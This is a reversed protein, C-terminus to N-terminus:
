GKSGWIVGSDRVASQVDSAVRPASYSIGPSQRSVGPEGPGSYSLRLQGAIFLYVMASGLRIRADGDRGNLDIDRARREMMSLPNGVVGVEQGDHRVLDVLNATRPDALILVGLAFLLQDIRYELSLDNPLNVSIEDGNEEQEKEACEYIPLTEEM